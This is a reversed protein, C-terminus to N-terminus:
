ALAWATHVQSSLIGLNAADDSAVAILKDDPLVISKLFTFFRHKSTQVTVIYRDLGSLAAQLDARARGPLWWKERFQKDKQQDRAPKVRDHIWQYVQPFRTRVDVLELGHLYILSS